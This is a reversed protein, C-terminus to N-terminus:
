LQVLNPLWLVVAPFMTLVALCMLMIFGFPAAALAVRSLPEGTLGQLVFLNFGIPPTIQGLEVLVILFVGFWIPNFGADLVLPLVVPITMVTISVGDLFCGLLIYLIGIAIILGYPGLGSERVAAALNTPVHLYALTTSLLSAAIMITIIMCSTRTAAMASDGLLGWSLQRTVAVVAFTTAVGVAAAETPTAIGSYIAGMVIGILVFVPWLAALGRLIEIVGPRSRDGPSLDPRLWCRCAIYASFAGAIFFGPIFGAIFLKAISVEAVVGYVIMVISPPILLGLSGGAALSGITLDLNYNRQALAGTTIKGVTAATAASSGSVAGFLTCGAINTHFLRGPIRDAVPALGRFLREAVDTRFVIEGMFIFLPLASLEWGTASRFMSTKALAGIREIPFGLILLLSTMAVLMIGAFVWVGLGLYVVVFGFLAAGVAYATM